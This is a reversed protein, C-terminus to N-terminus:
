RRRLRAAFFGDIGGQERLHCPLTRLDGNADILSDLGGVEDPRLPLREVPAGDRLLAAIHAPGEEPQLSCTCFVITGDPRIMEIAAQLLRSQLAALKAVDQPRKLWPVDPHRRITGTASCPADLLVADAPQDPRWLTADAVATTANLGLRTLNRHLRELRPASRDVAIVDAGAAALQATKGGPAACLDIVRKGRVDGLLRAPLAAAADQVWWAGEGFGPLSEVLGDLPLRLSGTPLLTAALRDRWIAVDCKPTIDLPPERLHAAAIEGAQEAGFAAVWSEWLWPPTNLSPESTQELWAMRERDVRRLIANLLGKFGAEGGRAAILEVTTDVAAHPPTGLFLLQCVGLRLLQRVAGARRPLPKDLCGDIIRDIQGLRRLTTAVLLRTFGRDRPALCDRDRNSDLADDLPRKQELVAELTDFALARASTSTPAAPTSSPPASIGV